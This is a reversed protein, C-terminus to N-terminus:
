SYPQNPPKPFLFNSFSTPNHSLYCYYRIYVATPEPLDYLLVLVLKVPNYEETIVHGWVWVLLYGVRFCDFYEFVDQGEFQLIHFLYDQKEAIVVEGVDVSVYTLATNVVLVPVPEVLEEKLLAGVHLIEEKGHSHNDQTTVARLNHLYAVFLRAVATKLLGVCSALYLM